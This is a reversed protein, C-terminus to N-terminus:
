KGTQRRRIAYGLVAPLGVLGGMLSSMDPVVAGVTDPVALKLDNATGDRTVYDTANFLGGSFGYNYVTNIETLGGCKAYFDGWVPARTSRFAITWQTSGTTADFKVGYLGGSPMNPNGNASTYTDPSSPNGPGGLLSFNMLDAGLVVNGSTEIIMHSIDKTPVTLVYRYDYYSGSQIVEWFLSTPPTLSKNGWSATAVLQDNLLSLTGSYGFAAPVALLTSIAASLMVGALKRRM